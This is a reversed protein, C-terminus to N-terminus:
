SEKEMLCRNMEEVVEDGEIPSWSLSKLNGKLPKIELDTGRDGSLGQHSNTHHTTVFATV